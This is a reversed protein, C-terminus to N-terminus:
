GAAEEVRAICLWNIWSSLFLLFAVIDIDGAGGKKLGVAAAFAVFPDDPTGCSCSGGGAVVIEGAIIVFGWNLGEGEGEFEMWGTAEVERAGDGGVEETGDVFFADEELEEEFGREVEDDEEEGDSDTLLHFLTKGSM